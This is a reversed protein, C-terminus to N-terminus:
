ATSAAPLRELAELLLTVSSVVAGVALTAVAVMVLEPLATTCLVSVPVACRTLVATVTLLRELIVPAASLWHFLTAMLEAEVSVLRAAV